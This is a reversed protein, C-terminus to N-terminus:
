RPELAYVERIDIATNAVAVACPIFATRKHRPIMQSQCVTDIGVVGCEGSISKSRIYVGGSIDPLRSNCSVRLGARCFRYKSRDDPPAYVSVIM